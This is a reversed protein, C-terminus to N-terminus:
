ILQLIVEGGQCGSHDGLTLILIFLNISIPLVPKEFAFAFLDEHVLNINETNSV